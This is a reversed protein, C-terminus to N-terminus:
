LLGALKTLATQEFVQVREIRKQLFRWEDRVPKPHVPFVVERFYRRMEFALLDAAQIGPSHKSDDLTLSGLGEVFTLKRSLKLQGYLLKARADAKSESMQDFYVSLREMRRMKAMRLAMTEIQQQFALYYPDHFKSQRKAKFVTALRDYADLDIIAGFGVTRMARLISAFRKWLRERDARSRGKYEGGGGACQSAKFETLSERNLAREWEKDFDRWESAHAVWGAICFINPAQDHTISEDCYARLDLM